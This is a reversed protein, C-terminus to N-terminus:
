TFIFNTVQINRSDRAFRAVMRIMQLIDINRPALMDDGNEDDDISDYIEGCRHRNNSIVIVARSDHKM